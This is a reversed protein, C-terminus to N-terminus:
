TCLVTTAIEVVSVNGVGKRHSGWRAQGFILITKTIASVTIPTVDRNTNGDPFM